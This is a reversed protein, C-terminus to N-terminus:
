GEKRKGEIKNQPWDPCCLGCNPMNEKKNNNDYNITKLDPRRTSILRDTEIEFDWLVKRMEYELVSEPNHM